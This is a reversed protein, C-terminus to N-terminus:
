RGGLDRIEFFDFFGPSEFAHPFSTLPFFGRSHAKSNSFDLCSESTRFLPMSLRRPAEISVKSGSPRGSEIGVIPGSGEWTSFFLFDFFSNSKTVAPFM